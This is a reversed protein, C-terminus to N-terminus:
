TMRSRLDARFQERPILRPPDRRIDRLQRLQHALGLGLFLNGPFQGKDIDRSRLPM